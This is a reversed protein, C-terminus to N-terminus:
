PGLCTPGIGGFEVKVKSTSSKSIFYLINKIRKKSFHEINLKILNHNNLM